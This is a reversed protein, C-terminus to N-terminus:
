QAQQVPQQSIPSVPQSNVPVDQVQGNPLIIRQYQQPQQVQPQPQAVQPSIPPQVYQPQVPTANAQFSLSPQNNFTTYRGQINIGPQKVPNQYYQQPQQQYPYTNYNYYPDPIRNDKIYQIGKYIGYGVAAVAVIGTAIIAGQALGSMDRFKDFDTKYEGDYCMLDTTSISAPTSLTSIEM